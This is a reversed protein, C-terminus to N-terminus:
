SLRAIRTAEPFLSMADRVFEHLKSSKAAKLLTFAEVVHEIELDKLQLISFLDHTSQSADMSIVSRARVCAMIASPNNKNSKLYQENITMLDQGSPLFTFESKIVDAVQPHITTSEHTIAAQFRLILEHVKPHSPSIKHAAFLCRFALLFNESNSM